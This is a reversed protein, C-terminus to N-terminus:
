SDAGTAAAERTEEHAMAIEEARRENAEETLEAGAEPDRTLNEGTEPDFIHIKRTDLWLEADRGGRVRSAADLTVVIQPRLEDADM